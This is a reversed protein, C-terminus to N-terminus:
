LKRGGLVNYEYCQRMNHENCKLFIGFRSCSDHSSLIDHDHHQVIVLSFQTVLTLLVNRYYFDEEYHNRNKLSVMRVRYQLYTWLKGNM